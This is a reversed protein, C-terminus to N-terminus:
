ASEGMRSELPSNLALLNDADLGPEVALRTVARERAFGDRGMSALWIALRAGQHDMAKTVSAEPGGVPWWGTARSRLDALLLRSDWSRISALGAAEEDAAGSVAAERLEALLSDIGEADVRDVDHRLFRCGLSISSQCEGSRCARIPVPSRTIEDDCLRAVRPM